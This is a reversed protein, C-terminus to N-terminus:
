VRMSCSGDLLGYRAIGLLGWLGTFIYTYEEERRWVDTGWWGGDKWRSEM